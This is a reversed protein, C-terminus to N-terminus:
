WRSTAAKRLMYVGVGGLALGVGLEWLAITIEGPRLFAFISAGASIIGFALTVGGVRQRQRKRVTRLELSLPAPEDM